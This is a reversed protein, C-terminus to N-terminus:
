GAGLQTYLRDLLALLGEHYRQRDDEFGEMQDLLRYLLDRAGERFADPIEDAAREVDVIHRRLVDLAGLAEQLQEVIHPVPQPQALRDPADFDEFQGVPEAPQQRRQPTEYSVGAGTSAPREHRDDSPPPTSRERPEPRPEPDPQQARQRNAEAITSTDRVKGDLGIRVQPEVPSNEGTSQELGRRWNGITKHDVGLESAVARDSQQAWIHGRQVRREFINRKDRSSLALANTLNDSEAYDLAGDYGGPRQNAKVQFIGDQGEDILMQTARRAAALRHFGASLLYGEREPDWHVDVPPFPGWGGHEFMVVAYQEVTDPNLGSVRVQIREDIIIEDLALWVWSDGQGAQAAAAQQTMQTLSRGRQRQAGGRMADLKGSM